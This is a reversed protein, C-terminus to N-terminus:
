VFIFYTNSMQKEMNISEKIAVVSGLDGPPHPLEASGELVLGSVWIHRCCLDWSRVRSDFAISLYGFHGQLCVGFKSPPQQGVLVRSLVDLLHLRM